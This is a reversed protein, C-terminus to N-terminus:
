QLLIEPFPVDQAAEAATLVINKKSNIGSNM